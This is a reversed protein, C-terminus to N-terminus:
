GGASRRTFGIAAWAFLGTLPVGILIFWAGVIAIPNDDGPGSMVAWWLWAGFGALAASAVALLSFFIRM